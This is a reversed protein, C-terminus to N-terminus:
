EARNMRARDSSRVAGNCSGMPGRMWVRAFMSWVIMGLKGRSQLRLEHPYKKRRCRNGGHLDGVGTVLGNKEV